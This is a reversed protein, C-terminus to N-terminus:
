KMRRSLQKAANNVTDIIVMDQYFKQTDENISIALKLVKFIKRTLVLENPM